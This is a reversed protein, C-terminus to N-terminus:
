KPEMFEVAWPCTMSGDQSHQKCRDTGDVAARSCQDKTYHMSFGSSGRGSYRPVDRKYVVAQCRKRLANM